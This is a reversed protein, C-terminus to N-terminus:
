DSVVELLWTPVYEAYPQIGVPHEKRPSFVVQVVAQKDPDDSSWRLKVPEPPDLGVIIGYRWYPSGRHNFLNQKVYTGIYMDIVLQTEQSERTKRIISTRNAV